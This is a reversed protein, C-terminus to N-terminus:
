ARDLEVCDPGATDGSKKLPKLPHILIVSSTAVFDQSSQNLSTMGKEPRVIWTRHLNDDWYTEDPYTKNYDDHYDDM